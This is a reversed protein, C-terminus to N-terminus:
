NSNLVVEKAFAIEDSVGFTNGKGFYSTTGVTKNWQFALEVETKGGSVAIINQNVVEAKQKSDRYIFRQIASYITYKISEPTTQSVNPLQRSTKEIKIFTCNLEDQRGM